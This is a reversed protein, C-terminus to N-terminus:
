RSEYPSKLEALEFADEDVEYEPPNSEDREAEDTVLALEAMVNEAAVAPHVPCAPEGLLAGDGENPPLFRDGAPHRAVAAEESASPLPM